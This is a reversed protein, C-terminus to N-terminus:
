LQAIQLRPGIAISVRTARFLEGDLTFPEPAFFRLEAREALQHPPALRLATGALVRSLQLAMAVTSLGSAVLHFRAPSQDAQWAVKM